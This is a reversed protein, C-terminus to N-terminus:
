PGGRYIARTRGITIASGEALQCSSIRHADVFTGNTSGLDRVTAVLRPGDTTVRVEAHQRSVGPDDVIVDAEDGRGLVTTSAVLPFNQGDIELFPRGRPAAPPASEVQPRRPPAFGPAAPAPAPASGGFGALPGLSSPQPPYAAPSYSPPEAYPEPRFEAPAGKASSAQVSFIGTDLGPVEIIEVTVPGVFAYGQQDAYEMLNDAFEGRLAEHYEYLRDFDTAGLEVVFVNPVLTRGHGVVAARDDAAKRLASAIEVPQVESRFAKAFAGNVAREIGKEFRNFVGM